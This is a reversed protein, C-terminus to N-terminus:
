VGPGLCQSAPLLSSDLCLYLLTDISALIIRHCHLPAQGLGVNLNFKRMTQYCSQQTTHISAWLCKFVDKLIKSPHM